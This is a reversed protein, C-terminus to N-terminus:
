GYSVDSSGYVTNGRDQWPIRHGDFSLRRLLEVVSAPIRTAMLLSPSHKGYSNRTIVSLNLSRKKWKLEEDRDGERITVHLPSSPTLTFRRLGLYSGTGRMVRGIARCITVSPQIKEQCLPKRKVGKLM